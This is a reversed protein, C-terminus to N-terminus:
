ESSSVTQSVWPQPHHLSRVATRYVFCNPWHPRPHFRLDCGSGKSLKSHSINNQAQNNDNSTNLSGYIQALTKKTDRAAPLFVSSLSALAPLEAPSLRTCLLQGHLPIFLQTLWPRGDDWDRIRMKRMTGAPITILTQTATIAHNSPQPSVLQGISATGALGSQLM